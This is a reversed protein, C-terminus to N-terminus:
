VHLSGGKNFEGSITSVINRTLPFYSLSVKGRVLLYKEELSIM